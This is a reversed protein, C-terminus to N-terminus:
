WSTWDRSGHLKNARSPRRRRKKGRSVDPFSTVAIRVVRQTLFEDISQRRVFDSYCRRSCVQKFNRLEHVCATRAVYRMLSHSDGLYSLGALKQLCVYVLVLPKVCVDQKTYERSLKLNQPLSMYSLRENVRLRNKLAFRATGIIERTKTAKSTTATTHLVTIRESRESGRLGGLICCKGPIKDWTRM